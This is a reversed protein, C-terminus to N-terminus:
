AWVSAWNRSGRKHHIIPVDCDCDCDRDCYFYAALPQLTMETRQTHNDLQLVLSLLSLIGCLFILLPPLRTRTGSQMGYRFNYRGSM